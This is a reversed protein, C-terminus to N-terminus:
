LKVRKQVPYRESPDFRFTFDHRGDYTRRSFRIALYGRIELQRAARRVQRESMRLFEALHELTSPFGFDGSSTDADMAAFVRLSVLSLTSDRLVAARLRYTAQKESCVMMERSKPRTPASDSM